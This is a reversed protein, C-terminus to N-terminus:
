DCLFMCVPWWPAEAWLGDSIKTCITHCANCKNVQELTLGLEAARAAEEASRKKAEEKAAELQM